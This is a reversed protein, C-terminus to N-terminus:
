FQWKKLATMSPSCYLISSWGEVKVGWGITTFGVILVVLLKNKKEERIVMYRAEQELKVIVETKVSHSSPSLGPRALCSTVALTQCFEAPDLLRYCVM